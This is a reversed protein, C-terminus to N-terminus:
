NREPEPFRLDLIGGCSPCKNDAIPTRKSSIPEADPIMVDDASFEAGCDRCIFLTDKKRPKRAM